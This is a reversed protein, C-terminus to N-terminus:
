LAEGKGPIPTPLIVDYVSVRDSAVLIVDGRDEYVDRVKGSHLLRVWAGQDAVVPPRGATRGCWAVAAAGPPPVRPPAPTGPHPTKVCVPGAAGSATSRTVIVISPVPPRRVAGLPPPGIGPDGGSAEPARRGPAGGAPVGTAESSFRTRNRM